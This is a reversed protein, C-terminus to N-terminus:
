KTMRDIRKRMSEINVSSEGGRDTVYKLEDGFVGVFDAVRNEKIWAFVENPTLKPKGSAHANTLADFTMRSIADMKRPRNVHWKEQTSTSVPRDAESSGAQKAFRFPVLSEHEDLWADIDVLYIEEHFRRIEKSAYVSLAGPAYTKIQKSLIADRIKEFWADNPAEENLQDVIEGITLRGETAPEIEVSTTITTSGIKKTFM